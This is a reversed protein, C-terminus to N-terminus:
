YCRLPITSQPYVVQESPHEWMRRLGSRYIKFKMTVICALTPCVSCSIKDMTEWKTAYGDTEYVLSSRDQSHDVVREELM